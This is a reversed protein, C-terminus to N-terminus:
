IGSRIEALLGTQGLISFLKAISEIIENAKDRSLINQQELNMLSSLIRKPDTFIPTGKFIKAVTSKQASVIADSTLTSCIVEVLTLFREASIQITKQPDSAKLWLLTNTRLPHEPEKLSKLLSEALLNGLRRAGPTQDKTLVKHAAVYLKAKAEALNLDENNEVTTIYGQIRELALAKSKEGGKDGDKDDEHPNENAFNKVEPLKNFVQQAYSLKQELTEQTLSPEAIVQCQRRLREQIDMRLFIDEVSPQGTTTCGIGERSTSDGMYIHQSTDNGRGKMPSGNQRCSSHSAEDSDIRWKSSDANIKVM